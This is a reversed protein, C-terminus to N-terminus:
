YFYIGGDIYENYLMISTKIICEIDVINGWNNM